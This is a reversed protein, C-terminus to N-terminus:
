NLASVLISTVDFDITRQACGRLPTWLGGRGSGGPVNRTETRNQEGLLLVRAAREGPWGAGRARHFRGITPPPFRGCAAHWAKSLM